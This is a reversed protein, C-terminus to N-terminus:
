VGSRPKVSGEWGLILHTKRICRPLVQCMPKSFNTGHM